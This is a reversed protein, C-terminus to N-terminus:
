PDVPSAALILEDISRKPVFAIGAEDRYRNLSHSSGTSAVRVEEGAQGLAVVFLVGYRDSLRLEVKLRPRDIGTLLAGGLGAETAGLLITHAAIAAESWAEDWLETDLVIVIYASPREGEAPGRWHSDLGFWSLTQFIGANLSSSSSLIYKLPQANARSPIFRVHGVLDRLVEPAIPKKEQFRRISRSREVLDRLM